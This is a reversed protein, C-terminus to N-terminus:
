RHTGTNVSAPTEKRAM